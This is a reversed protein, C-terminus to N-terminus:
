SSTEDYLRVCYSVTIFYIHNYSVHHDYYISSNSYLTNNHNTIHSFFTM